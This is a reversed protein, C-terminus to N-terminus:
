SVLKSVLRLNLAIKIRFKKVLVNIKFLLSQFFYEDLTTM